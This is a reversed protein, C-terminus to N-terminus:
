TIFIYIQHSPSLVTDCAMAVSSLTSTVRCCPVTFFDHGSIRKVTNVPQDEKKLTPGAVIVILAPPPPAVMTCAEIVRVAPGWIITM